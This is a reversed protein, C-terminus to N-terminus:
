EGVAEDLERFQAMYLRYYAGKRRMLEEHNGAEAIGGDEIVFIRDARRITSLRHAVVFSTRGRLLTQIGKQVLIETQTDISSTAEDLMLIGPKLVLTRAFALLQKQGASLGAGREKLVTDYGDKMKMIFEHAHVAKAAAIVEEDAADLKGYRINEMVTGSFLFNEQTMIGLQSRLSELTVDRVDSGDIRVAGGSVDFFRAILSVITTKGAGTPGVLAITEGPKIHFSVDQLVPIGDEYSFDVHNFEVSGEIHPLEKADERNVIEAKTDILDFVREAAALNTSLQNYFNSLNMVPNWFMTIYSGFAVLTGVTSHGNLIRHVGVYYLLFNSLAWCFDIVPGFGDVLRCAKIYTDRHEKTLEDFTHATQREARFSQVMRIGSFDEHIFANMNSGKKRHQQWCVHSRSEIFTVGLIMLPLSAMAALALHWDKVLMIGVVGFLTLFEPILTTVSNNLVEKLSNVDGIVRSLIKGTPRSNFYSMDLTQIHEYLDQRVDLLIQNTIKAMLYMRRRILLILILNLCVAFIGLETLAKLNGSAIHVDIAREIILPNGLIIGTCVAMMLLVRIIPLKYPILYRLLRKLTVGLPVKKLEEDEKVANVAM